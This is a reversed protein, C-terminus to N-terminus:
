ALMAALRKPAVLRYSTRLLAEVETWDLTARDLRFGIWGQKGVYAPLYFREPDSAVLAANGGPEFKCALGVIGDGHHDDLFYAFTKKGVLFRAHKGHTESSTGPFAACLKAIRVLRRDDASKPM